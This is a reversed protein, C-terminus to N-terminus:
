NSSTLLHLTVLGTGDPYANGVRYTGAAHGSAVVLLLGAANAPVSSAILTFRPSTGAAIGYGALPADDFGSEMIGTVAVGGLTATDAFESTNFFISLDETMAM